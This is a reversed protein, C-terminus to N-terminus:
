VFFLYVNPYLKFRMKVVTPRTITSETGTNNEIITNSYCSIFAHKLSFFCFAEGGITNYIPIFNKKITHNATSKAFSNKGFFYESFGSVCKKKQQRLRIM